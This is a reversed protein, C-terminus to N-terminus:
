CRSACVMPSKRRSGSPGSMAGSAGCDASWSLDVAKGPGIWCSRSIPPITRGAGDLTAIWIGRAARVGTRVAASQGSRSAHRLVRVTSGSLPAASGAPATEAALRGATGDDSFDDVFIVEHDGIATLAARIEALLPLVNDAENYVPIVVSLLLPEPIAAVTPMLM